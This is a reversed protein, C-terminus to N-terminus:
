IQHVPSTSLPWLNWNIEEGLDQQTKKKKKKRNKVLYLLACLSLPKRYLCGTHTAPAVWTRNHQFSNYKTIKILRFDLKWRETATHKKWIETGSRRERLEKIYLHLTHMHLAGNCISLDSM